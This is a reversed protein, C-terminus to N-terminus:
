PLFKNRNVDSTKQTPKAYSAIKKPDYKGGSSQTPSTGTKNLFLSVDYPVIKKEKNAAVIALKKKEDAQKVKNRGRIYQLGALTLGAGVLYKNKNKMLHKSLKTLKSAKPIIKEIEPAVIKKIRRTKLPVPKGSGAPALYTMTKAPNKLEKAAITKKLKNIQKQTMLKSDKGGISLMQDDYKKQLNYNVSGFVKKYPNKGYALDKQRQVLGAKSKDIKQNKAIRNLIKQVRKNNENGSYKQSRRVQQNYKKLSTADKKASVKPPTSSKKINTEISGLVSSKTPKYIGRSDPKLNYKKRSREIKLREKQHKTLPTENKPPTEGKPRENQNIFKKQKKNKNDGFITDLPNRNTNTTVPEGSGDGKPPPNEKKREQLDYRKNKIREFLSM